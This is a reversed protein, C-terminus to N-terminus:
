SRHKPNVNLTKAFETLKAGQKGLLTLLWLVLAFPWLLGGLVADRPDGWRAVAFFGAAAGQLYLHALLWPIM